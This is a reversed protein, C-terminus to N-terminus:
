KFKTFSQLVGHLLTCEVPMCHIGLGDIYITCPSGYCSMPLTYNQTPEITKISEWYNKCHRCTPPQSYFDNYETDM